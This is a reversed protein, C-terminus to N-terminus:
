AFASPGLMLREFEAAEPAGTRYSTKTLSVHDVTWPESRFADLAAVALELDEAQTADNISAVALMPRYRRRDVFFGLREVVQGAERALAHLAAVDGELKVWVCRDAPFELAAGGGLSVTAGAWGAAAQQLAAALRRGDGATVNGFDVLPLTLEAAPLLDLALGPPSPAPSAAVGRRGAFRRLLGGGPTRASGAPLPTSEGRAARLVEVVAEALASPPRIIAELRM